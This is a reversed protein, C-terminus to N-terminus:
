YGDRNQDVTQEDLFIRVARLESLFESLNQHRKEPKKALMKVVIAEFEPTVKRSPKMPPVEASLHKHFLENASRAVFPVRGNVLEYITIGFSYIDARRDLPLGRIQEPSMYSRTGATRGRRSFMRSLAGSSRVALAFDILRVEALSNVLINDPKVDRHVWHKEHMFDLASAVQELIKRMHPRIFDDYQGRLMRLKLNVCPFSEM